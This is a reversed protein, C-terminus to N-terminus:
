QEYDSMIRAAEELTGIEEDIERRLEKLENLKAWL